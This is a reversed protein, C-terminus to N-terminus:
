KLFEEETMPPNVMVDDIKLDDVLTGGRTMTVRRPWLLGGAPRRDAFILSVEVGEGAPYDLEVPVFQANLHLRSYFGKQTVDLVLEHTSYGVQSMRFELWGDSSVALMSGLLLRALRFREAEVLAATAAAPPREVTGARRIETLLTRGAFGTRRELGNAREIRLYRDPLLVRIEVTRTELWGDDAETVATGKLVVGLLAEISAEGGLRQRGQSLLARVQDNAFTAFRQEARPALSILLVLLSLCAMMHRRVPCWGESM